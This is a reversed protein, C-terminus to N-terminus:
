SFRPHFNLCVRGAGCSLLVPWRGCWSKCVVPLEWGTNPNFQQKLRQNTELEAGTQQGPRWLLIIVSVRSEAGEFQEATILVRLIRSVDSVVIKERSGM